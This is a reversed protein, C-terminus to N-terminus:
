KDSTRKTQRAKFKLGMLITLTSLVCLLFGVPPHSTSNVRGCGASIFEFDEKMGPTYDLTASDIMNPATASTEVSFRFKVYRKGQITALSPVWGTNDNAFGDSSGAYEVSFDPSSPSFAFGGLIALTSNLDFAKTIVSQKETSYEVWDGSVVVNGEEQPSYGTPGGRHYSRGTIWNRGFGGNGGAGNINGGDGGLAQAGGDIDLTYISVDGGVFVQLSGGGGGGGPAGNATSNGGDGGNVLIYGDNSTPSTGLEFNGAAHIIVTGGGAGGGGGGDGTVSAGGGGGAGGAITIFSEDPDSGGGQGGNTPTDGDGATNTNWGGGGGGGSQDVGAGGGGGTVAGTADDGNVGNGSNVGSTGGAGGNMGGCRGSGGNGATAGNGDEGNGGACNITGRIFVDSQSRIILPNPGSVELIKGAELEFRTVNLVPHDTTNLYIVAGSTSGFNAYTTSDFAGDSGDGVDIHRTDTLPDFVGVTWNVVVLSPHIKGLTQNWVAENTSAAGSDYFTRTSFTEVLQAARADLPLCFLLAAAFRIM